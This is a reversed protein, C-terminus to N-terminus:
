GEPGPDNHAGDLAAYARYRARHEGPQEFLTWRITGDLAEGSVTGEGSGILQGEGDTAIPAMGSRYELEADFLHRLAM